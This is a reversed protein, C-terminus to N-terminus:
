APQVVSGRKITRWVHNVGFHYFLHRYSPGNCVILDAQKGPEISGICDGRGLAAAANLTMATIAEAPLMRMQTCAMAGVLPLNETPCTGPNCDSALAVAAGQEILKRAPAFPVGLFFATGPLLTAVTRSGALATVGDDDIRLLHDASVAGLKAALVAGGSASFEDAHIKLGLGLERARNLVKESEAISFAGQECFVDCYRALGSRAVEPLMNEVVERVYGPRDRQYEPPVAHAGLFTPVLELPGEQNMEAIVELCKMEDQLSLGYGSKAEVTTVGFELFRRLRPRAAEKLEEKTAKRVSRVTANIGGGAAAIEQYTRGLLRAEFETERTGTFVLHTHSDVFGPLVTKGACDIRQADPAVAPMEASPGVWAISGDRVVVTGNPIIELEGLAKGRKALTGDRTVCVVEAARHLVLEM